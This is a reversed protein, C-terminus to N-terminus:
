DLSGGLFCENIKRYDQVSATGEPLVDNRSLIIIKNMSTNVLTLISCRLLSCSFQIIHIIGSILVKVFLKRLHKTWYHKVIGPISFHFCVFNM